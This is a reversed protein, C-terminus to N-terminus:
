RPPRARNGNPNLANTFLNGFVRDNPDNWDFWVEYYACTLQNHGRQHCIGCRTTAAAPANEFRNEHPRGPRAKPLPKPPYKNVDFVYTSECPLKIRNRKLANAAEIFVEALFYPQDGVAFKARAKIYADAEMREGNREALQEQYKEWVVIAHNCAIGYHQWHGCGCTRKNLNVGYHIFENPKWEDTVMAAEAPDIIVEEGIRVRVTANAADQYQKNAWPTLIAENDKLEQAAQIIVGEIEICGELWAYAFKFPNQGRDKLQKAHLQEVPNNSGQRGFMCMGADIHQLLTWSFQGNEEKEKQRALSAFAGPPLVRRLEEWHGDREFQTRAGQYPWFLTKEDWGKGVKKANNMMHWSCTAFRRDNGLVQRAIRRFRDNDDSIVVSSKKKMVEILPSENEGDKIVDFLSNYLGGHESDDTSLAFACNTLTPDKADVKTDALAVVNGFVGRYWPHYSHCGDFSFYPVGAKALFDRLGRACLAYRSFYKIDGDDGRQDVPLRRLEAEADSWFVTAACNGRLDLWNILHDLRTFSERFDKPSAGNGEKWARKSHVTTVKVKSNVQISSMVERGRTKRDTFARVTELNKLIRKQVTTNSPCHETGLRCWANHTLKTHKPDIIWYHHGDKPRIKRIHARYSCIHADRGNSIPQHKKLAKNWKIRDVDGRCVVRCINGGRALQFTGNVKNNIFSELELTAYADSGTRFPNWLLSEDFTESNVLKSNLFEEERHIPAGQYPNAEGLDVLGQVAGDENENDDNAQM